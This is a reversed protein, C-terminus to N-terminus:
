DIPPMLADSATCDRRTDAACRRPALDRTLCLRVEQIRGSKCTVTLMDPSLEPNAKLFAEEVVSAPLRVPNELKRFVEPRTVSGYARRALAFYDAPDLGACRGHKKWQYWAAGGDGMIDAMAATEARSPNRAATRCYSPWGDEYQPWLGHMVWGLDRDADCQPSNRARGEAACWGPSWSLALLYYDFDGAAEGEAHASPTLLALAMLAALLRATIDRM